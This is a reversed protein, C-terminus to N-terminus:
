TTFCLIRPVLSSLNLNKRFTRIFGFRAKVSFGVQEKLMTLVDGYPASAFADRDADFSCTALLFIKSAGPKFSIRGAFDLAEYVDKSQVRSRSRRGGSPVSSQIRCFCKYVNNCVDFQATFDLWTKSSYMHLLCRKVANTIDKESAELNIGGATYSKPPELNREGGFGVLFFSTEMASRQKLSLAISSTLNGFDKDTLCQGQELVLVVTTINPVNHLLPHNKTRKGTSLNNPPPRRYMKLSQGSVLTVSLSTQHKCSVCESPMWLEIGKLRCIEIYAAEAHCPEGIASCLEEFPVPDITGFCPMLASRVSSFHDKLCPRGGGVRRTAEDKSLGSDIRWSALFDEINDAIEGSPMTWDDYPENNYVGLLGATTAFNHWGDVTVSCIRHVGNCQIQIGEASSTLIVREGRREIFTVGDTGVGGRRRGNLIVRPLDTLRHNVTVKPFCSRSDTLSGRSASIPPQLHLKFNRPLSTTAEIVESTM